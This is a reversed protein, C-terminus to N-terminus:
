RKENSGGLCVACPLCLQHTRKRRTNTLRQPHCRRLECGAPVEPQKSWSLWPRLVSLARSGLLFVFGACRERRQWKNPCPPGAVLVLLEAMLGQSTVSRSIKFSCGMICCSSHNTSYLATDQPARCPVERRKRGTRPLELDGLESTPATTPQIHLYDRLHQRQRLLRLDRDLL